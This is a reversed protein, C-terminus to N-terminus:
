ISCNGHIWFIKDLFVNDCLTRVGVSGGEQVWLKDQGTHALVDIKSPYLPYYPVIWNQSKKRHSFHNRDDRGITELPVNRYNPLVIFIGGRYSVKLSCISVKLLCHHCSADPFSLLLDHWKINKRKQVQLVLLSYGQKGGVPASHEWSCSKKIYNLTFLKFWNITSFLSWVRASSTSCCKFPWSESLTLFPLPTDEIM